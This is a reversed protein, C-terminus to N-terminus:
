FIFIFLNKSKIILEDTPEINATHKNNSISM